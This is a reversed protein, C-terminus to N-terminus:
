WWALVSAPVQCADTADVPIRQISARDTHKPLVVDRRAADQSDIVLQPKIDFMVDWRQGATHAAIRFAAKTYGSPRDTDCGISFAPGDADGYPFLLITSSGPGTPLQQHYMRDEPDSGAATAAALTTSLPWQGFDPRQSENLDSDVGGIRVGNRVQRIHARTDWRGGSWAYTQWGWRILGLDFMRRITDYGGYAGTRGLGIVSAVGHFYGAVPGNLETDTADWDVSFYVPRDAPGGCDRHQRAAERADAVGQPYGGRAASPQYEWNSVVALGAGILVRAEAAGLNKGSSDHSLYRCVFGAGAARLAVVGPRGWGYDVGIM